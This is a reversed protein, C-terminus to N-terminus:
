QNGLVTTVRLIPTSQSWVQADVRRFSPNPTPRVSLQVRLTQQAQVCTVLSDGVGPLQRSLRLTNLANDACLQAWLVDSQRQASTTLAQTAKLGTMLGLAVIGLAVLVEILTFGRSSSPPPLM